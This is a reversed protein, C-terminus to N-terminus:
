CSHYMMDDNARCAADFYNIAPRLSRRIVVKQFGKRAALMM